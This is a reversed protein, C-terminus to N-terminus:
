IVEILFGVQVPLEAPRQLKLVRNERRLGFGPCYVSEERRAPGGQPMIRLRLGDDRHAIWAGDPGQELELDPHFHLYSEIEHRGQGSLRDQVLWSRGPVCAIERRHMVEGALRRYGDHSAAFHFSRPLDHDIQVPGPRARRGVRFCGWVDSQEAGDVRVTNHAATKRLARRFETDEYDYIGSDVIVPRGGLTLEFSLLDCHGHGPQYDPGLPGVDILLHESGLRYGFYGTEAKFIVLDEIGGAVAPGLLRRAYDTLVAVDKAIGAASDNFGPLSGDPRVIDLLYRLAREAHRCIEDAFATPILGPNARALNAVDLLDELAIAHYMASREYHGGDPLFQERVERLFLRLGKSLWREARDGAFFAGGFVLAKANKLLHNAQIEHELNRELWAVQRLLSEKWGEPLTTDRGRSLAFIVWNVIRLSVPYPEWAAGPGPPNAAIWRGMAEAVWDPAAAPDLAYDFYQLNYRWLRSRGPAQWDIGGVFAQPVNLFCFSDAGRTVRLGPAGEMLRLGTRITWAQPLSVRYSRGLSRRLIWWAAQAPRLHRGAHFYRALAEGSLRPRARGVAEGSSHVTSSM